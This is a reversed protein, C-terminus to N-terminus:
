SPGPPRAKSWPRPWNWTKYIRVVAHHLLGATGSKAQGTINVIEDLSLNFQFKLRLTEQQKPTLSTITRHVVVRPEEGEHGTEDEGPSNGAEDALPDRQGAGIVRRRANAFLWVTPDEEFEANEAAQAELWVAEVEAEVKAADAKSLAHVYSRLAVKHRELFAPAVAAPTLVAASPSPITTNM